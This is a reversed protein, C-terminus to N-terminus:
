ESKSCSDSSDNRGVDDDDPKHKMQICAINNLIRKLMKDKLPSQWYQFCSLRQDTWECKPLPRM